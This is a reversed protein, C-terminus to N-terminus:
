EIVVLAGQEELKKKALFANESDVLELIKSPTNESLDKAEKLGLNTVERIMKIVCIKAKGADMLVVNVLKKGFLRVIVGPKEAALKYFMEKFEGDKINGLIEIAEAYYNRGM